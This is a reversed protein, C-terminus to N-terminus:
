GGEGPVARDHVLLGGADRDGFDAGVSRCWWWASWGPLVGVLAGDAVLPRPREVGREDAVRVVGDDALDVGALVHGSGNAALVSRALPTLQYLVRRGARWSTVLGSRRLVAVHASVAPRPAPSSSTGHTNAQGCTIASMSAPLGGLM